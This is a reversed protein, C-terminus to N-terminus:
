RESRWREADPGEVRNTSSRASWDCCRELSQGRRLALRWAEADHQGRRVGRLALAAKGPTRSKIDLANYALLLTLAPLPPNTPDALGGLRALVNLVLMVVASALLYDVLFAVLRVGPRSWQM